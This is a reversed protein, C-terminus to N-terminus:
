VRGQLIEPDTPNIKRLGFLVYLLIAALPYFAASMILQILTLGLGPQEVFFVLSLLRTGVVIASMGITATLWEVGFPLDRVANARNSLNECVVYTALAMLGPPRLYVFDALLMMLAVLMPPAYDPRRLVWLVSITLLLDPGAFSGPQTSLPLLQWFIVALCLGVFCARMVWLRTTLNESM